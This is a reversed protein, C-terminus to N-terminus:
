SRRECAQRIFEGIASVLKDVPEDLIRDREMSERVAQAHADRLAGIQRAGDAIQRANEAIHRANEALQEQTKIQADALTVLVDDLQTRREALKLLLEEIRGVRENLGDAM